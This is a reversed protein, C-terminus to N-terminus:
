CLKSTNGSDEMIRRHLQARDALYLCEWVWPWSLLMFVEQRHQMKMM